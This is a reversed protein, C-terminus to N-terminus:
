EYSLLKVLEEASQVPALCAGQRCVYATGQGNM